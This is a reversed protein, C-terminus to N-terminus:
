PLWRSVLPGLTNAAWVPLRSWAATATRFLPRDPSPTGIVGGPSWQGWPLGVDDAGWQQKFRHTGSGPSCRGFNFKDAGRRNAEEMLSWYLLMNPALRSLDRSAGAWTIEFEGNWLFGCGAAAPARGHYVVCFVSHAGLRAAIEEFFRKPLVPTGLDRMTRSFVHYFDEVLEPGFRATMGEKQPRRIQSRLKARLGAEWLTQADAPLDKVVTIKRHSVSLDGPIPQRSRLEVLDVALEAGLHVAREALTARAAQSGIPGGYSLFPMSLLYDGFFRSRVHVLPLYGEVQKSSDVAVWRTGHHGLVDSILDGWAHLHCFTSGDTEAVGADWEEQTGDFPIAQPM